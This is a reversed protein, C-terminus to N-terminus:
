QPRPSFLDRPTLPEGKVISKRKYHELCEPCVHVTVKYNDLCYSSLVSSKFCRECSRPSYIPDVHIEEDIAKGM